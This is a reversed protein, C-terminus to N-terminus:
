TTKTSKTSQRALSTFSREKVRPTKQQTNLNYIWRGSGARDGRQLRVRQLHVEGRQVLEIDNVFIATASPCKMDSYQQGM